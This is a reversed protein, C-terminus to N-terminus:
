KAIANFKCDKLCLFYKRLMTSFFYFAQLHMLKYHQNQSIKLGTM